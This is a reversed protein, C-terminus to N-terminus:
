GRHRRRSASEDLSALFLTKDIRGQFIPVGLEMCKVIVERRELGSERALETPTLHIPWRLHSEETTNCTGFPQVAGSASASLTFRHASSRTRSTSSSTASASSPPSCSASARPRRLDGDRLPRRRPLPDRGRARRENGSARSAPSSPTWARRRDRRRPARAAAPSSASRACRPGPRALFALPERGGTADRVRARLEDPAIGDGAPRARVGIAARVARHDTAGIATPWCRTTASRPTATSRCTTPPSRWTTHRLAAAPPAQAARDIPRPRGEWFLGHHVLVLDAGQEAAREFLEVGASVGTVVTGVRADRTGAARQTRLRRVGLPEPPRRSPRHPRRPRPAHPSDLIPVTAAQASASHVNYNARGSPHTTM